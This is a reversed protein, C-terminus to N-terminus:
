NPIQAVFSGSQAVGHSERDLLDAVAVRAAADIVASQTAEAAVSVDGAGEAPVLSPELPQSSLGLGLSELVM